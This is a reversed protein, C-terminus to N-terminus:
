SVPLQQVVQRAAGHQEQQVQRRPLIGELHRLEPLARLLVHAEGQASADADPYQHSSTM